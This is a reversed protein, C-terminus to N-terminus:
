LEYEKLPKSKIQVAEAQGGLKEWQLVLEESIAYDESDVDLADGVDVSHVFYLLFDIKKAKGATLGSNVLYSMSTLALCIEVPGVAHWVYAYSKEPPYNDEFDFNYKKEREPTTREGWLRVMEIETLTPYKKEALVVERNWWVKASVWGDSLM